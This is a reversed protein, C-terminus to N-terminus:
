KFLSRYLDVLGSYHLLERFLRPFLAAGIAPLLLGSGAVEFLLIEWPMLFRLLYRATLIYLGISIGSVLAPVLRALLQFPDLGLLSISLSAQIAFYVLFAIAFAIAADVPGYRTLLAFCLVTVVLSFIQGYLKEQLHLTVELISAFLTGTMALASGLAIWAILPRAATWHKGLVTAVLEPAAAAIGIAVPLVIVTVCEITQYFARDFREKENRVSVFSSFLVRSVATTILELPLQVLSYARNFIGLTAAGLTAGVFIAPVQGRAIEVFSIKSVMYASKVVPFSKTFNLDMRFAGDVGWRYGTAQLLTQALAGFVLSFPGLGARACLFAVGGLGFFQAILDVAVLKGFALERRLTARATTALATAPLMFSCAALTMGFEYRFWYSASLGAAGVLLGLGAMVWFLLGLLSAVNDTSMKEQLVIAREAPSLIFTLLPQTIILAAAYLGYDRPTLLRALVILIATQLGANCLAGLLTVRIGKMTRERLQM